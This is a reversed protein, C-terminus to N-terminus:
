QQEERKLEFDSGMVWAALRVLLVGLRMRLKFERSVVVEIVMSDLKKVVMQPNANM